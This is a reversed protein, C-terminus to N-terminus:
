FLKKLLVRLFQKALYSKSNPTYKVLKTSSFLLSEGEGTVLKIFLHMFTYLNKEAEHCNSNLIVTFCM